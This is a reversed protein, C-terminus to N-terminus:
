YFMRDPRTLRKTVSYGVALIILSLVTVVVANELFFARSLLLPLIDAEDFSYVFYWEYLQTHLEEFSFLAFLAVICAAYLVSAARWAIRLAEKKDQRLLFWFSFLALLFAAALVRASLNLLNRFQGMVTGEGRGFVPRERGMYWATKQFDGDGFMYASFFDALEDQSLDLGIEKTVESRSFEYRYVDPLRFTLNAAALICIVPLVLILLVFLSRNIIKM